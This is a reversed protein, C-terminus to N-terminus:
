GAGVHRSVLWVTYGDAGDTELDIYKGDVAITANGDTYSTPDKDVVFALNEGSGLTYEGGDGDTVLYYPRFAVVVEINETVDELDLSNDANLLETVDTDNSDVWMIEYGDATIGEDDEEM